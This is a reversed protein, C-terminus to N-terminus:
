KWHRVWYFAAPRFAEAVRVTMIVQNTVVSNLSTNFFWVWADRCSHDWTSGASRPCSAHHIRVIVRNAPQFLIQKLICSYKACSFYLVILFMRSIVWEWRPKVVWTSKPFIWDRSRRLLPNSWANGCWCNATQFRVIQKLNCSKKAHSFYENCM